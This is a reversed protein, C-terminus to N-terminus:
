TVEASLRRLLRQLRVAVTSYPVGRAAAIERTTRREWFRARLLARDDPSLRRLARRLLALQHQSAEHREGAVLKDLANEAPDILGASEPSGEAPTDEVERHPIARTSQRQLDYFAHRVMAFLYAAPATAGRVRALRSPDHLRLLVEQVADMPDMLAGEPVRPRLAAGFVALRRAFEGWASEDRAVKSGALDDTASSGVSAVDEALRALLASWHLEALEQREAM